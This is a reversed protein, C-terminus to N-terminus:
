SPRPQMCSVMNIDIKHYIEPTTFGCAFLCALLLRCMTPPRCESVLCDILPFHLAHFTVFRKHIYIVSYLTDFPPLGVVAGGVLITPHKLPRSRIILMCGTTLARVQISLLVLILITTENETRSYEGAKGIKRREENGSCYM